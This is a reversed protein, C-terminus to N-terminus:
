SKPKNKSIADDHYWGSGFDVCAFGRADAELRAIPSVKSRMRPQLPFDYIKATQTTRNKM